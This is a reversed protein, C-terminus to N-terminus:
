PSFPIIATRLRRAADPSIAPCFRPRPGLVQPHDAVVTHVLDTGLKLLRREPSIALHITAVCDPPGTIALAGILSGNEEFAGLALRISRQVLPTSHRSFFERAESDPVERIHAGSLTQHRHHAEQNAHSAIKADM